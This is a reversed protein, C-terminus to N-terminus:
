ETWIKAAYDREYKLTRIVHILFMHSFYFIFTCMEANELKDKKQCQVREGEERERSIYFTKNRAIYLVQWKLKCNLIQSIHRESETKIKEEGRRRRVRM